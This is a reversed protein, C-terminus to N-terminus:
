DSSTGRRRIKNVLLRGPALVVKAVRKRFGTTEVKESTARESTAEEVKMVTDEVVSETAGAEVIEPEVLPELESIQGAATTTQAEDQSKKFFSAVFEPDKDMQYSLATASLALTLPTVVQQLEVVTNALMTVHLQTTSEDPQILVGGNRGLQRQVPVFASIASALTAVIVFTKLVTM